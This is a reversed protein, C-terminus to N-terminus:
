PEDVDGSEVNKLLLDVAADILETLKVKKYGRKMLAMKIRYLKELTDVWIRVTTSEKNM